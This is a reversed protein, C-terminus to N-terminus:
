SVGSGINKRIINYEEKTLYKRLNFLLKESDNEIQSSDKNLSDHIKFNVKTTDSEELIKNENQILKNPEDSVLSSSDNNTILNEKLLVTATVDSKKNPKLDSFRAILKTITSKISDLTLKHPKENALESKLSNIFQKLDIGSLDKNSEIESNVLKTLKDSTQSDLSLDGPNMNTILVNLFNDLFDFEAAEETLKDAKKTPMITDTGNAFPLM